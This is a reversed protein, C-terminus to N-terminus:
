TEATTNLIGTIGSLVLLFVCILFWQFLVFLSYKYKQKLMQRVVYFMLNGKRKDKTKMEEGKIEIMDGLLKGNELTFVSDCYDQLLKEDHSVIVVLKNKSMEKLLQMIGKAQEEFLNGTPEDCLLINVDKLMAKAISMRKLQGGSLSKPYYDLLKDIGVNKSISMLDKKSYNINSAECSLVINEKVTLAEIYDNSQMMYSVHKRRYEYVDEIIENNFFLSGLFDEDLLSLIYLLSSKGCGSKGKIGIFGTSPFTISIDNLIVRDDIIKSINKLELM